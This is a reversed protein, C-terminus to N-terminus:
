TPDYRVIISQDTLAKVDKVKTGFVHVQILVPCKALSTVSSVKENYDMFVNNLAKLGSLADLKTLLNNSGDITVLACTAPFKPLATVKNYAFNLEQLKVLSALSTIDTLANTSVNLYVLETCIAAASIDTLQNSALGLYTLSKWNDMQPLAAIANSSAELWTLATLGTIPSLDSVANYSVNLETLSTLTSLLSLDNLANNQLDLKQLGQMGTLTSLDRISNNSLDLETIGTAGSLGAITTIGCGSLTLKKLKALSSIAALEQVSVNTDTIQVSILNSLSSLFDLQGATGKNLTLSELYTLYKLDAYDKADEPVTFEKIDWLQNTFLVVDAAVGLQKRIQAEIAADKFQVEEIVGGLTYGYIALESVLGNPAVTLAYLTNEGANLAIPGTYRDEELSPYERDTTVYLTGEEASVTVSFYQNYFGPEPSVTPAAPRMQALQEKISPSTVKNLFNVADLLKDQEVYIRCLEIYLDIGGGDAIANSLTYEARSYNGSSIYQQALEIAVDDNHEAQNYALDYLWVSIAHNGQNEFFRASSLLVDRTFDRDYIMLYWAMCFLIAIAICIPILIRIARKM